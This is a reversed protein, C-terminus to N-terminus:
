DLNGYVLWEIQSNILSNVNKARLEKAKEYLKQKLNNETNEKSFRITLMDSKVHEKKKKNVM